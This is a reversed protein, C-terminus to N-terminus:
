SSETMVLAKKVIDSSQLITAYKKFIRPRSEDTSILLVWGLVFTDVIAFYNFSLGMMEQLGVILRFAHALLKPM